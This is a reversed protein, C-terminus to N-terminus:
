KKQDREKDQLESIAIRLKYSEICIDNITIEASLRDVQGKLDNMAQTLNACQSQELKLTKIESRLSTVETKMNEKLARYKEDLHAITVQAGTTDKPM